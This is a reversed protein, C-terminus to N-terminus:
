NFMQSINHKPREIIKKYNENELELQNIKSSLKSIENKYNENELELQNIKSSLKSIENKYQQVKDYAEKYDCGTFVFVVLIINLYLFFKKNKM